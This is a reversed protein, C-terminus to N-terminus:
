SLNNVMGTIIGLLTRKGIHGTVSTAAGHLNYVRCLGAGGNALSLHYNGIQWAGDVVAEAPSGSLENLLHVQTQLQAITVPTPRTM